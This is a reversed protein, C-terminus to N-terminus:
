FNAVAEEVGEALGHFSLGHRRSRKGRGRVQPTEMREDDDVSDEIDGGPRRPELNHIRGEDCVMKLIVM